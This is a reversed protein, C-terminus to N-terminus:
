GHAAGCHPPRLVERDTSSSAGRVACALSPVYRPPRMSTHSRISSSNAPGAKSCGEATTSTSAATDVLAGSQEAHQSADMAKRLRESVRRAAWFARASVVRPPARQGIARKRERSAAAAAQGAIAAAAEPLLSAATQRLATADKFIDPAAWGTRRASAVALVAAVAM